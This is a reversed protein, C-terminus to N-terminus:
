GHQDETQLQKDAANNIVKCWVPKIRTQYLLKGAGPIYSVLLWSVFALNQLRSWKRTAVENKIGSDNWFTIEQYGAAEELLDLAAFKTNLDAKLTKCAQDIAGISCYNRGTLGLRTEAVRTWKHGAFGFLKKAEILVDLATPKPTM